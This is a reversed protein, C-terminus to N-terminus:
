KSVQGAVKNSFGSFSKDRIARVQYYFLDDAKLNDDMFQMENNEVTALSSFPGCANASRFIEYGTVADINQVPVKWELWVKTGSIKATLSQPAQPEGQWAWKLIKYETSTRAWCYIDGNNSFVPTGYEVIVIPAWNYYATLDKEKPPRNLDFQTRPMDLTTVEKSCATKRYVRYNRKYYDAEGLEIIFLTKLNDRFYSHFAGSITISYTQNDPYQIKIKNNKISFSAQEKVTNEQCVGLFEGKVSYRHYNRIPYKGSGLGIDFYYEQEGDVVFGNVSPDNVAALLKNNDGFFLYNSQCQVLFGGNRHIYVNDHFDDIQYIDWCADYDPPPKISIIFNGNNDYKHIVDNVIDSIYLYGENNIEFFKPFSDDKDPRGQLVGFEKPGDGWKGKILESPGVWGAFLEVPLLYVLLVVIIKAVNKVNCRKKGCKLEVM